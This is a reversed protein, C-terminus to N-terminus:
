KEDIEQSLLRLIIGVILAPWFYIWLLVMPVGVLLEMSSLNPSENTAALIAFLVFFLLGLIGTVIVSLFLWRAVRRM